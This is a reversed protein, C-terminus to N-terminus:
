FEENAENEVSGSQRAGVLIEREAERESPPKYLWVLANTGEAYSEEIHRHRHEIPHLSTGDDKWETIEGAMKVHEDEGFHRGRTDVHPSESKDKLLLHTHRLVSM